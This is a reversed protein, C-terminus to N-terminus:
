LPQCEHISNETKRTLVTVMLEVGPLLNRGGVGRRRGEGLVMEGLVM